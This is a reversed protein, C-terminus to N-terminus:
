ECLHRHAGFGKKLKSLMQINSHRIEISAIQPKNKYIIKTTQSIKINQGLYDDASFNTTM